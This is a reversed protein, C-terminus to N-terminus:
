FLSEQFNNKQNIWAISISVGSNKKTEGIFHLDVTRRQEDTMKNPEDSFDYYFEYQGCFMHLMARLERAIFVLDGLGFGPQEDVELAEKSKSTVLDNFSNMILSIDDDETKSSLTNHIGPGIDKITIIQARLSSGAGLNMQDYNGELYEQIISPVDKRNKIETKSQFILKLFSVGWFGKIKTNRYSRAHDFSNEAAHFAIGSLKDYQYDTLEDDQSWMAKLCRTIESRFKQYDAYRGAKREGGFSKPVPNTYSSIFQRQQGIQITGQEKIILKWIKFALQQRIDQKDSDNFYFNDSVFLLQLGFISKLPHELTETSGSLFNNINKSQTLRTSIITKKNKLDNLYAIAYGETIAQFSSKSTISFEIENNSNPVWKDDIDIVKTNAKIPIM